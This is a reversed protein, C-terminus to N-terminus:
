KAKAKGRMAAEKMFRHLMSKNRGQTAEVARAGTAEELEEVEREDEEPLTDEEQIGVLQTVLWSMAILRKM